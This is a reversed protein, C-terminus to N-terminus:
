RVTAEDAPSTLDLVRGAMAHALEHEGMFVDVAANERLVAQLIRTGRLLDDISFHLGVGFMLLM